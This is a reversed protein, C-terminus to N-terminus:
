TAADKAAELGPRSSTSRRSLGKRRGPSASRLREMETDVIDTTPETVQAIVATTGPQLARAMTALVSEEEALADLDILSGLLAGWVGGLLLGLPAGLVGLTLGILGGTV